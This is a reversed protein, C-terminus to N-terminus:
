LSQEFVEYVDCPCFGNWSSLCDTGFVIFCESGLFFVKPKEFLEESGCNIAKKIAKKKECSM